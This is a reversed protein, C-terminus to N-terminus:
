GGMILRFALCAQVILRHGATGGAKAVFQGAVLAEAAFGTKIFQKFGAFAAVGVGEGDVGEFTLGRPFIGGAVDGEGGGGRGGGKEGADADGDAAAAAVGGGSVEDFASEAFGEPEELVIEGGAHVVEDDGLGM